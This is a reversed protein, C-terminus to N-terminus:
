NKIFLLINLSLGIIGLLFEFVTIRKGSEFDSTKVIEVPEKLKYSTYGVWNYFSLIILIMSILINLISFYFM